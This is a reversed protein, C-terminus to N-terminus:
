SAQASGLNRKLFFLSMIAGSFIALGLIAFFRWAHGMLPIGNDPNVFAIIYFYLIYSMLMFTLVVTLFAKLYTIEIQKKVKLVLVTAIMVTAYVPISLWGNNSLRNSVILLGGGSLGCILVTPMIQKLNILKLNM